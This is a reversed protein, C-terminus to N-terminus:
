KKREKRKTKRAQIMDSLQLTGRVIKDCVQLDKRWNTFTKNCSMEGCFRQM